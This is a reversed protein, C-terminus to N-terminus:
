KKPSRKKTPKAKVIRDPNAMAKELREYANALRMTLKQSPVGGLSKITKINKEIENLAQQAAMQEALAATNRELRTREEDWTKHEQWWKQLDPDDTVSAAVAQQGNTMKSDKLDELRGMLRCLLRTVNDLREVTKRHQEREASMDSPDYPRMWSYPHGGDNCPM